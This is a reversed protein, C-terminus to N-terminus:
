KKQGTKRSVRGKNVWKKKRRTEIKVDKEGCKAKRGSKKRQKSYSSSM